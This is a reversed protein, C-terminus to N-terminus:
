QVKAKARTEWPGTLRINDHPCMQVCVRCRAPLVENCGPLTPVSERVTCIPETQEPVVPHLELADVPCAVVCNSCGTRHYTKIQVAFVM